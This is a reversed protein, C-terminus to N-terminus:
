HHIHTLAGCARLFTNSLPNRHGGCAPIKQSKPLTEICFISDSRPFYGAAPPFKKLNGIMKVNPFVNKKLIELIKYIFIRLNKRRRRDNKGGDHPSFVLNGGRPRLIHLPFFEFKGVLTKLYPPSIFEFNGNEGWLPPFFCGRILVMLFLCLIFFRLHKELCRAPM